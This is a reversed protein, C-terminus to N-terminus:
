KFEEQFLNYWYYDKELFKYLKIKSEDELTDLKALQFGAYKKANEATVNESQFKDIGLKTRIDTDLSEQNLIKIHNIDQLCLYPLIHRLRLGGFSYVTELLELKIYQELNNEEWTWNWLLPLASVREDPTNIHGIRIMNYFSVLHTAPDRLSIVLTGGSSNCKNILDLNPFGFHVKHWTVDDITCSESREIDTFQKGSIASWVTNGGTKPIHFYINHKMEM